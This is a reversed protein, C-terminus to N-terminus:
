IIRSLHIQGMDLEDGSIRIEEVRNRDLVDNPLSSSAQSFLAAGYISDFHERGRPLHEFISLLHGRKPGLHDLTAGHDM